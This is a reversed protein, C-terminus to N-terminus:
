RNCNNAFILSIISRLRRQENVYPILASACISAMTAAASLALAKGTNYNCSVAIWMTLIMYTPFIILPVLTFFFANPYGLYKTITCFRSIPSKTSKHPNNSPNSLKVSFPDYHIRERSVKYLIQTHTFAHSVHRTFVYARALPSTYITLFAAVLLSTGLIALLELPDPLKYSTSVITLCFIGITAASTALAIRPKPKHGNNKAVRNFTDFALQLAHSSNTESAARKISHRWRAESLLRYDAIPLTKESTIGYLWLCCMVLFAAPDFVTILRSDANVGSWTAAIWYACAPILLWLTRVYGQISDVDDIQNLIEAQLTRQDAQLQRDTKKALAHPATRLAAPTSSQSLYSTLNQQYSRQAVQLAVLLTAVIGMTAYFTSLESISHSAFKFHPKLPPLPSIDNPNLLKEVIQPAVLLAATVLGISPWLSLALVWAIPRRYDNKSTLALEIYNISITRMPIATKDKETVTTKTTNTQTTLSSQTPYYPSNTM